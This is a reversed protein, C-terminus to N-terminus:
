PRRQALLRGPVERGVRALIVDGDLEKPDATPTGRNRARAWLEAARLMTPTNLPVYRLQAKLLDLREISRTLKARILERRVEYNAIEPLFVTTGSLLLRRFWGVVARNARPHCLM